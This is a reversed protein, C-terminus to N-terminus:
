MLYNRKNNTTPQKSSIGRPLLVAYNNHKVYNKQIMFKSVRDHNTFYLSYSLKIETFYIDYYIVILTESKEVNKKLLLNRRSILSNKYRIEQTEETTRYILFRKNIM